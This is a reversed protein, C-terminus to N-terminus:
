RRFQQTISYIPSIISLALIAVAFGLFIFLVPELIVSLNQTTDNLDEEHISASYTLADTLTGSEEGVTIIQTDTAPFLKPAEKLTNHLSEGSKIKSYILLLQKKYYYNPVTKACVRIGEDITMGSKLLIGLSRYFMSLNISKSLAGIIPTILIIKHTVPKTSKLKIFFIILGITVVFIILTLLGHNQSFDSLWILARTTWPLEVKFNKFMRSIKPLVFIALGMGLLLTGVLIIMPYIMAGVVKKRLKNSKELQDALYEVNKELTGSNEGIKIINRYIESFTKPHHELTEGFSLGTQTEKTIRKLIQRFKSKAQGKLVDLAESLTSGSKLLIALNKTFLLITKQSVGGIYFQKKEKKKTKTKLQAKVKTKAKTKTKPM